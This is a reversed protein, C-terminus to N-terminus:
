TLDLMWFFNFGLAYKLSDVDREVIRFESQCTSSYEYFKLYDRTYKKKM